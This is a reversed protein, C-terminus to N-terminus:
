QPLVEMTAVYSLRRASAQPVSVTEDQAGAHLWYLGAQPWTVVFEGQVDTELSLEELRNRYRDGGRIVTVELGARPEGDILLRFRAAEGAFLDNPHTIAQLELGKGQVALAVDNPAGSTVFTEIRGASETVRLNSAGAPVERAFQEPSLGRRRETKGDHEWSAMLGANVIAIRYTGTTALQVDFVSRYKGTAQNQASVPKGDPGIIVLGDLRLPVHNFFFLDNSVAADVTVWPDQGALVTQSPQLWFRHAHAPVATAAFAALLLSAIPSKM